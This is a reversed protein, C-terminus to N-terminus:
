STTTTLETTPAEANKPLYQKIGEVIHILSGSVGGMHDVWDAIDVTSFDKPIEIGMVRNYEVAAEFLFTLYADVDVQANVL